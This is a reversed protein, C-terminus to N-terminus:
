SYSFLNPQHSFIKLVAIAHIVTPILQNQSLKVDNVYRYISLFYSANSTLKFFIMVPLCFLKPCVIIPFSDVKPNYFCLEM